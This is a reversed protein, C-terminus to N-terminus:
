RGGGRITMQEVQPQRQTQVAIVRADGFRELYMALDEKIGDAQWSPANVQIIVTLM